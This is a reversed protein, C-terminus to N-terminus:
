RRRRAAALGAVCLLAAGGPTPIQSFTQRIFSTTATGNAGNAFLQFNKIVNIELVPAFVISQNLVWQGQPMGGDAFVLMNGLPAGNAQNFMSEAVKAFSGPGSATGNFALHADVIRFGQAAFPARIQVRYGLNFGTNNPDGPPDNWGGVLDFGIGNLGFDVPRVTVQNGPIGFPTYFDIFFEKDGVIFSNGVLQNMTVNGGTIDIVAASAGCSLGAASVLVVLSMRGSM